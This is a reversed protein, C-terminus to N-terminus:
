MKRTHKFLFNNNLLKTMKYVDEIDLEIWKILETVSLRGRQEIVFSCFSRELINEQNIYKINNKKYNKTKKQYKQKMEVNKQTCQDM